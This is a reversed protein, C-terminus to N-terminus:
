QWNRPRRQRPPRGLCKITFIDLGMRVIAQGGTARMSHGALHETDDANVMQM